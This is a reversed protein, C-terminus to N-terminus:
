LDRLSELLAQREKECALWTTGFYEHILNDLENATVVWYTNYCDVFFSGKLTKGLFVKKDQLFQIFQRIVRNHEPDIKDLNPTPVPKPLEVPKHKTEKYELRCKLYDEVEPQACEGLV